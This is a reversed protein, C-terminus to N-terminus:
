SSRSKELFAKKYMVLLVVLFLPVLIDTWLPVGINGPNANDRFIFHYFHQIGDGLIWISFGLVTATWFDNRYWISLIGLCGFALNVNALQQQFPCAPWGTYDAIYQDMFTLGFFAVISTIGISFVIQYLLLLELLKIKTRHEKKVSFYHIAFGLFSLAYISLFFLM